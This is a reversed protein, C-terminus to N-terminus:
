EGLGVDSLSARAEDSLRATIRAAPAPRGLHYGQGIVQGFSHLMDLTPQDEIGEAVVRLGLALALSITSSVIIRDHDNTLINGVFSRDIKLEDVQLRKLYNLSANGTGYDDISVEVGRERLTRIVIDARVPDSLIATETVELALARMPVRYRAATDGVLQPLALNSVHRASINVALRLDTGSARWKALQNVATDLVFATLPFILGSNEALPIFEDPRVNGRDPHKWRVLAEVGVTLGSDLDVQPQYVVTLQRNDIAHRLDALLQLREVSNVDLEESYTSIRDREVKAHYLAIDANKMLSSVDDGHAPAAAVGASARVFLELNDVPVPRDFATLLDRAIDQCVVPGGHVVVAFEDGGLRHVTAGEPASAKLRQAVVRLIQDGVPHGLADNIDKFHDLDILILGPGVTKDDGAEDIANGLEVHLQGRNGLGTLSDHMADYAHRVAAAAFLHAAIVPAVLLMLAGVGDRTVLAAVGGVSLLVINTALFDKIDQVLVVFLNQGSAISVVGAVLVWNTMIMAVGAAVLPIIDGTEIGDRLGWLPNGSLLAYATGGVFVSVAYQGSNFISKIPDRNRRLDDALSAVIQAGIAFGLGATAILALVFPASTSLTRTDFGTGPLIIPRIEGVISAIVLFATQWLFIEGLVDAWPTKIGSSVAAALGLAGVAFVYLSLPSPPAPNKVRAGGERKIHSLVVEM